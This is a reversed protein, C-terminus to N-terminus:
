GTVSAGAGVALVDLVAPWSTPSLGRCRTTSCGAQSRESPALGGDRATRRGTRERPRRHGFPMPPGSLGRLDACGVTPPRSPRLWRARDDPEVVSPVAFPPTGGVSGFPRREEARPHAVDNCVHGREGSGECLDVLAGLESSPVSKGQRAASQTHRPDRFPADATSTSRPRAATRRERTSWESDPRPPGRHAVSAEPFAVSARTSRRNMAVTSVSSTADIWTPPRSAEIACEASPPGVVGRPARTGSPSRPASHARTARAAPLPPSRPRQSRPPPPSRAVSSAEGPTGGPTQRHSPDASCQDAEQLAHDAHQPRM